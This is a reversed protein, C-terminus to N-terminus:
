DFSIILPETTPICIISKNVIRFFHNFFNLIMQKASEGLEFLLFCQDFVVDTELKGVFLAFHDGPPFINELLSDSIGILQGEGDGVELGNKSDM